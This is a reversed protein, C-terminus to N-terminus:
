QNSEIGLFQNVVEPQVEGKGRSHTALSPTGKRLALLVLAGPEM